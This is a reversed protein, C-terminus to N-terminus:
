EAATPGSGTFIRKPSKIANTYSERMKDFLEIKKEQRCQFFHRQMSFYAKLRVKM